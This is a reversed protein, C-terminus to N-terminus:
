SANLMSLELAMGARALEAVANRRGVESGLGCRGVRGGETAPEVMLHAGM